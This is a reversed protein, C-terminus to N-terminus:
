RPSRCITITLDSIPYQGAERSTVPWLFCDVPLADEEIKRDGTAQRRYGAAQFLFYSFTM